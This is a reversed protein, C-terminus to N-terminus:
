AASPSKPIEHGSVAEAIIEVVPRPATISPTHDVSQARIHASMREAMFRQAEQPIMRDDEALLYWSPKSSWNTHSVKEQICAVAIPRQIATLLRKTENSANQAFANQFGEDPMWIDGHRDPVLKPALSHPEERYFVDAVTEGEAPALGAILVVSQVRPDDVSSVVAGAYAHGVLVVPATARDLMRTISAVDGSLSAMAIPAAFVEFDLDTLPQIVNAWSSGDAWAGHVLIVTARKSATAMRLEMRNFRAEAIGFSYEQACLSYSPISISNFIRTPFKPDCIFCCDL